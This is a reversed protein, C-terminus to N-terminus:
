GNWRAVYLGSNKQTFYVVGRADVLVDEVQVAMNRRCRGSGGPPIACILYAVEKVRHPDSTDYVRLGANFYTLFCVTGSRFLNPDESPMHQNHPGFRGGRDCFSHYPAAPPPEPAPFLSVLAPRTVDSIDVLATFGPPEDSHEELAESNIIALRREPLPVVTHVAIESGLPPRVPLHGAMRPKEPTSVDLIVLGSESYPLLVTDAM